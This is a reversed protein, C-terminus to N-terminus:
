EEEKFKPQKILLFEKFRKFVKDKKNTITHPYDGSGVNTATPLTVAGMGNVSATTALSESEDLNKM